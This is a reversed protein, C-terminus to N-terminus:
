LSTDRTQGRRITVRGVCQYHQQVLLAVCFYARSACLSFMSCELVVVYRREPLNHANTIVGWWKPRSSLQVGSRTSSSSSSSSHRM